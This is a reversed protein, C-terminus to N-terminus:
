KREVFSSCIRPQGTNVQCGFVDCFAIQKEPKKEIGNQCFACDVILGPQADRVRELERATIMIM